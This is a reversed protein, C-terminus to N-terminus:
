GIVNVGEAVHESEGAASGGGRCLLGLPLLARLLRRWRCCAALGQCTGACARAAALMERRQLLLQCRQPVGELLEQHTCQAHQVAVGAASVCMNLQCVRQAAAATSCSRGALQM